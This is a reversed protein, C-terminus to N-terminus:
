KRAIELSVYEWKNPHIGTGRIFDDTTKQPWKSIRVKWWCQPVFVYAKIFKSSLKKLWVSLSTAMFSRPEHTTFNRRGGGVRLSAAFSWLHGHPNSLPTKTLPTALIEDPQITLKELVITIVVGFFGSFCTTFHYSSLFLSLSGLWDLNM